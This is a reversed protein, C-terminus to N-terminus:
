RCHLKKHRARQAQPQGRAAPEPYKHRQQGGAQSIMGPVHGRRRAERPQPAPRRQESKGRSGQDFDRAIVKRHDVVQQIREGRRRREHRAGNQHGRGEGVEVGRQAPRQANQHAAARGPQHLRARGQQAPGGRGGGAAQGVGHQGGEFVRQGHAPHGERQQERQYRRPEHDQQQHEDQRPQPAPARM